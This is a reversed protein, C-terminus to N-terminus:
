YIVDASITCARRNKFMRQQEYNSFDLVLNQNSVVFNSIIRYIKMSTEEIKLKFVSATFRM